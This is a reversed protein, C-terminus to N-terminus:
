GTIGRTDACISIAKGPIGLSPTIEERRTTQHMLWKHGRDEDAMQALLFGLREDLLQLRLAPGIAGQINIWASVPSRTLLM